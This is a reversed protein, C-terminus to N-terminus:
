RLGLLADAERALAGTPALRKYELLARRGERRTRRKQILIKGLYFNAEDPCEEYELCTRILRLGRRENRAAEARGLGLLAYPSFEDLGQPPEGKAAKPHCEIAKAFSELSEDGRKLRMLAEGRIVWGAAGSPYLAVLEEARKLGGEFDGRDVKLQGAILLTHPSTVGDPLGDLADLAKVEDDRMLFAQALALRAGVNRADSESVDSLVRVAQDYEEKAMYALGLAHDTRSDDILKSSEQLLEIAEDHADAAMRVRALARLSAAQLAKQLDAGELDVKKLLAEYEQEPFFEPDPSTQVLAFTGLAFRLTGFQLVAVGTEKRGKARKKELEPDVKKGSREGMEARALGARDSRSGPEIKLAREYHEQAREWEGVALYTGALARRFDASNEFAAEAKGLEDLGEQIDGAAFKSVAFALAARGTEDKAVETIEDRVLGALTSVAESAKPDKGTVQGLVYRELAAEVDLPFKDQIQDFFSFATGYAGKRAHWRALALLTRRRGSNLALARYLFTGEDEFRQDLRALRAKLAWAKPSKPYIKLTANLEKELEKRSAAATSLFTMAAVMELSRNRGRYDKVQQNAAELVEPALGFQHWRRAQVEAMAGTLLNALDPSKTKLETVKEEASLLRALGGVELDEAIGKLEEADTTPDTKDLTAAYGIWFVTVCLVLLVARGTWVGFRESTRVVMPGGAKAGEGRQEPLKPRQPKETRLNDPKGAPAPADPEPRKAVEKGGYLGWVADDVMQTMAPGVQKNSPPPPPAVESPPVAEAKPPPSPPASPPPASSAFGICANKQAPGSRGTQRFTGQTPASIPFISKSSRSTAGKSPQGSGSSRVREEAAERTSRVESGKMMQSLDKASGGM